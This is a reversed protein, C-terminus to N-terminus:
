RAFLGSDRPSGIRRSAQGNMRQGGNGSNPEAQEDCLRTREAIGSAQAILTLINEPNKLRARSLGAPDWEIQFTKDWGEMWDFSLKLNALRVPRGNWVM